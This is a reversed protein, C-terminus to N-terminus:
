QGSKRPDPGFKEAGGTLSPPVVMLAGVFPAFFLLGILLMWGSVGVDHLRRVSYSFLPLISAVVLVALLIGFVSDSWPGILVGALIMGALFSFFNLIAFIAYDRRRARGSYNFTNKYGGIWANIITAIV